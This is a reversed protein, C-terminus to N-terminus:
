MDLFSDCARLARPEGAIRIVTTFVSFRSMEVSGNVPVFVLALEFWIYLSKM